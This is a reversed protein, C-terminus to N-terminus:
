AARRKIIERDNGKTEKMLEIHDEVTGEILIDLKWDIEALIGMRQAFLIAGTETLAPNQEVQMKLKHLERSKQCLSDYLETIAVLYQRQIKRRREVEPDPPAPKGNSMGLYKRADKFCFGKLKM